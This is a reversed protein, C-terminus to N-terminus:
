VLRAELRKGGEKPTVLWTRETPERLISLRHNARYDHYVASILSRNEISSCQENGKGRREKESESEGRWDDSPDVM